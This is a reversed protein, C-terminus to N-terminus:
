IGEPLPMARGNELLSKLSCIIASWGNSVHEYLQSNPGFGDHTVALLCIGNNLATVEFEVRTPAEAAFDPTYLAHWTIVLKAPPQYELVEGEVADTGDQMKYVVRSGVQWDSEIATAHFYQRTFEPETLAQFIKEPTAEIYIQYCHKLESM